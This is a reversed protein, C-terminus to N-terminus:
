TRRGSSGTSRAGSASRRPATSSAPSPATSLLDGPGPRDAPEVLMLASSRSSPARSCRWRDSGRAAPPQDSTAGDARTAGLLGHDGALTSRPRAVPARVEGDRRARAAGRSGRAPRLLRAVLDLLAAILSDNSNSQLAFDTYPYALWAFALVVGLTAAAAAPGCGCAASSCGSRPRSTSPSRRARALRPARGLQREVAHRARVPRLRLLEGARVHRRVPQRRPVRGRRLDARRPHDPRRRDHGRLRRRDGGLRRHQGDGPLRDPAVAALALWRARLAVPAPGRRRPLRAVAHPLAPLDLPPYALPVSVGIEGGTSTAAALDRVLAPGLLDLHVIRLPRRFDFLCLFFVLAMPIWVYPANLM